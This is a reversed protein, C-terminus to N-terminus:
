SNNPNQINKMIKEIEVLYSRFMEVQTHLIYIREQNQWWIVPAKLFLNGKEGHDTKRFKELRILSKKAEIENHFHWEEIIAYPFYKKYEFLISNKKRINVCWIKRLDAFISDTQTSDIGKYIYLWHKQPKISYFISDEKETYFDISKLKNVIEKLYESPEVLQTYQKIRELIIKIEKQVEKSKVDHYFDGGLSKSSKDPIFHRYILTSLDWQNEKGTYNKYRKTKLQEEPLNLIDSLATVINEEQSKGEYQLEANEFYDSVPNKSERCGTTIFCYLLVLLILIRVSKFKKM